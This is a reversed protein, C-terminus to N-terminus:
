IRVSEYYSVAKAGIDKRYQMGEFHIKQVAAYAKSVAEKPTTGLASVGLARGGNTVLDPGEYATGAHFVVIGEMAEADAIGTIPFGKKYAEPYGGSALVVNVAYGRVWEVKSLVNGLTHDVCAEILDLLDSKLLRMYVQTEPDGFRANFELVKPGDATIKLGPYLLGEFQVGHKFMGELAPRVVSREIVGMLETSVFSVPAITGM